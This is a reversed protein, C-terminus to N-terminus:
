QNLIAEREKQLCFSTDGKVETLRSATGGRYTVMIEALISLAIEEPTKSGLDLGIPTHIQYLKPNGSLLQSTRILEDTRKRPGLVGLYAPDMKLVDELIMQDQIFNHTMLIIYSNQNITIEPVKGAPYVIIDDADPFNQKSAFSTRYDLVTIQWHLLKAMRVLPMADPGAGYIILHPPPTTYEYFVLLNLNGGIFSLGNKKTHRKVLYDHLIENFRIDPIDKSAPDVLWTTGLLSTDLSDVITIRHVPKMQVASFFTDIITPKGCNQDPLYPELFINMKGNCGLGLGWVIDGEDQFDYHVIRPFGTAIIEHVYEKLDGEVCGGSLLGTLLGDESIFCKAGAKQYTSGETSLITGIVGKLGNCKCRQMEQYIAIM